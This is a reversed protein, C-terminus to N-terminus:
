REGQATQFITFRTAGSVALDKTNSPGKQPCAHYRLFRKEITEIALPSEDLGIWRRKEKQAVLLTTGSGAFADLVIDGPGSSALIVRRLLAEPKQTPYGTKERSTMHMADPIDGWVDGVLKEEILFDGEERLFYKIRLSGTKTRYIRGEKELREISKDTYDGRPATKFWRGESDRHFGGADKRVRKEWISRKFIHGKKRYLLITDHNRSFQRAVAKAGRGGYSWVIENLFNEEGFIEDMIVKLYHSMRWDIHLYISGDDSLLERLLVLRKRMFELFKTGKRNDGYAHGKGRVSFKTGSAFPPDIYVLRVGATNDANKLGGARMKSILAQLGILNDGFILMDSWGAEGTEGPVSRIAKLAAGDGGGDKYLSGNNGLTDEMGKARDGRERGRDARLRL